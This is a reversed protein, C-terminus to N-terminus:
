NEVRGSAVAEIPRGGAPAVLYPYLNRRAPDCLGARNFARLEAAAFAEFEAAPMREMEAELRAVKGIFERDDALLFAGGSQGAMRRAECTTAAAFYTMAFAAFKPFEGVSRYGGAVIRDVLDMEQELVAADARLAEGLTARGQHEELTGLLREIGWLAHAIGTSHLPDIFYAASPLLAWNTGATVGARRQLRGTRRWGGEPAVVEVGELWEGLTPYRACRAAWAEAPTREREAEHLGKGDVFGISTVGDDFPLVWMWGGDARLQHLAAEEARFPYEETAGGLETVREHWSPLGRVHAYVASSWTRCRETADPLRLWSAVGSGGGSADVVFEARVTETREGQKLVIRWPPGPAAEVVETRERVV